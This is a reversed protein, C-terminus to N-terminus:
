TCWGAKGSNVYMPLSAARFRMSRLPSFVSPSM